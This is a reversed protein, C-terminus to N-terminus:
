KKIINFIKNNEFEFCFYEVYYKNSTKKYILGIENIDKFEPPPMIGIFEGFFEKLSCFSEKINNAIYNSCDGGCFYEELFAYPVLNKPLMNPSFNENYEIKKDVCVIKGQVYNYQSTIKHKAIDLFSEEIYFGNNYYCKDVMKNFMCVLKNFLPFLMVFNINESFCLVCLFDAGNLRIKSFEAGEANFNLTQVFFDCSSEISLKIGNDCFLTCVVDSFKKQSIIKFEKEQSISNNFKILFGGQLDIIVVCNIPNDLFAQSLVFCLPPQCSSLAFLEIFDNEKVAYLSPFDNIQGAYIGNIKIACPKESCFYYFMM